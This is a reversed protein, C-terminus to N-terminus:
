LSETTAVHWTDIHLATYGGSDRKGLRIGPHKLIRKVIALHGGDVASILPTDYGNINGEYYDVGNIDVEKNSLIDEVVEIDGNYCAVCLRSTNEQIIRDRIM